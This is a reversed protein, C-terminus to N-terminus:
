WGMRSVSRKVFVGSDLDFSWRSLSFRRKGCSVAVSSNPHTPRHIALWSSLWGVDFLSGGSSIHWLLGHWRGLVFAFNALRGSFGYVGFQRKCEAYASVFGSFVWNRSWSVRGLPSKSVYKSVYAAARKSDADLADVHVWFSRGKTVASWTASLWRYDIYLSTRIPAHIHVMGNEIGIEPVSCYAFDADLRRFRKILLDWSHRLSPLDTELSSTVTLLRSRVGKM